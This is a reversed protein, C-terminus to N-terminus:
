TAQLLWTKSQRGAHCPKANRTVLSPTVRLDKQKLTWTPGRELLLRMVGRTWVGRGVVAADTRKHVKGHGQLEPQCRGERAAAAGNGRAWESGGRRRRRGAPRATRCRAAPPKMRLCHAFEGKM